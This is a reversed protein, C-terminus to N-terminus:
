WVFCWDPKSIFALKMGLSELFRAPERAELNYREIPAKGIEVLVTPKCRKITEQAGRLVFLEYGEVDIKLFNVNELEWSDLPFLPIGEEAELVFRAGTNGVRTPRSVDDEMRVKGNKNGLAVQHFVVNPCEEMLNTTLCEFTDSAPEFAHVVRFKEALIRSCLGIHAGVDVAVNWSQVHELAKLLHEQIYNGKRELIAQFHIDSDPLLWDAIRKM